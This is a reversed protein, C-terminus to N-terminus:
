ISSRGPTDPPFLVLCMADDCIETSDSGALQFPEQHLVSRGVTDSKFEKSVDNDRAATAPKLVHRGELLYLRGPCEQDNDVVTHVPDAELFIAKM